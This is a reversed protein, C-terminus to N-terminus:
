SPRILIMADLRVAGEGVGCPRQCERATGPRATKVNSLEFSQGQKWHLFLTGPQNTVVLDATLTKPAPSAALLLAILFHM